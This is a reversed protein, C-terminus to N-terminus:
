DLALEILPTSAQSGRPGEEEDVVWGVGGGSREISLVVGGQDSPSRYMYTFSLVYTYVNEGHQRQATIMWDQSKDAELLFASVSNRWVGTPAGFTKINYGRDSKQVM